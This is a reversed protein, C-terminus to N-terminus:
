SPVGQPEEVALCDSETLWRHGNGLESNEPMQPDFDTTFGATGPFIVVDGNKVQKVKPGVCVVEGRLSVHDWHKKHDILTLGLTNPLGEIAPIVKVLIRSSRPRIM